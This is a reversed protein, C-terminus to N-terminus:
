PEEEQKKNFISVVKKFGTGLKNGKFSAKVM